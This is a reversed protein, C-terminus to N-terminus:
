ASPAPIRAWSKPPISISTTQGSARQAAKRTNKTAVELMSVEGSSTKPIKGERLLQETEPAPLVSVDLDALYQLLDKGLPGDEIERFVRETIAFRRQEGDAFNIYEDLVDPGGARYVYSLSNANAFLYGNSM